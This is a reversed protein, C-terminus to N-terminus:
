VEAGFSGKIFQIIGISSETQEEIAESAIQKGFNSTANANEFASNIFIVETEVINLKKLICSFNFSKGTDASWSISLDKLIMNEYTRYPTLVTLLERESKIRSLEEEAEKLRNVSSTFPNSLTVASSLLSNRISYESILGTLSIEIPEDIIHDNITGGGEIPNTTISSNNSINRSGLIDFEITGIKQRDFGNRFILSSLNNFIAM